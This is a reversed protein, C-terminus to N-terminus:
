TIEYEGRPSPELAKAIAVVENDYFYLGPVAFHSKPSAPEIEISIANKNKDFEVVGYREPDSVILTCSAAMPNRTRQYSSVSVLEM